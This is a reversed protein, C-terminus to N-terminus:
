MTFSGPLGWVFASNEGKCTKDLDALSKLLEGVSWDMQYHRYGVQTSGWAVVLNWDLEVVLVDRVAWEDNRNGRQWVLGAPESDCANM